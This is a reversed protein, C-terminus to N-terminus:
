SQNKKDRRPASAAPLYNNVIRKIGFKLLEASFNILLGVQLGCLKLCTLLQKMHVPARETVSKVEVIVQEDVVLDARFSVDMEM